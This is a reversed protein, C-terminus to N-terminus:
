IVERTLYDIGFNDGAPAFSPIICLSPPSLSEVYKHQQPPVQGNVMM